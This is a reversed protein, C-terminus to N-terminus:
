SAVWLKQALTTTEECPKISSNSSLQKVVNALPHSLVGKLEALGHLMAKPVVFKQISGGGATHSSSSNAAADVSDICADKERLRIRAADDNRIGIRADDEYKQM